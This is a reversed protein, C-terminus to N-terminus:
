SQPRAGLVRRRERDAEALWREFRERWWLNVQSVQGDPAPVLHWRRRAIANFL